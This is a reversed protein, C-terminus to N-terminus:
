AAQKKRRVLVLGSIGLGFLAVTGPEMVKIEFSQYKGNPGSLVLANTGSYGSGINIMTSAVGPDSNALSLGSFLSSGLNFELLELNSNLSFDIGDVGGTNNTFAKWSLSQAGTGFDTSAQLQDKHLGSNEFKFTNYTDLAANHFVISGFWDVIPTAAGTGTWRIHWDEASTADNWLYYGAPSKDAIESGFTNGNYQPTAMATSSALVAASLLGLTNFLKM